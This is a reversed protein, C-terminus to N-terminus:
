DRRSGKYKWGLLWRDNCAPYYKILVTEAKEFYCKPGGTGSLLTNILFEEQLTEKLCKFGNLIQKIM